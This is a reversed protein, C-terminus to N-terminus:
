LLTTFSAPERGRRDATRGVQHLTTQHVSYLRSINKARGDICWYVQVTSHRCEKLTTWDATINGVNYLMNNCLLVRLLNIIGYISCVGLAHYFLQLRYMGTNDYILTRSPPPHISFVQNEKKQMPNNLISIENISFQLSIFYPWM